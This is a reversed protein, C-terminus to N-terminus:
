QRRAPLGLLLLEARRLLELFFEIAHTVLELLRLAPAIQRARALKAVAFDRLKFLLEGDDFRLFALACQDFLRYRRILDGGDHRTPRAHRDVLHEFALAVLKELHLVSQRLADDTLLFCHNGNRRRNPTRAGPKM